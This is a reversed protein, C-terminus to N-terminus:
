KKKHNKCGRPDGPVGVQTVKSAWVAGVGVGGLKSMTTAPKGFHDHCASLKQFDKFITWLRGLNKPALPGVSQTM